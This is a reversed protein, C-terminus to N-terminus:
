SRTTARRSPRAPGPECGGSSPRRRAGRGRGPRNGRCGRRAPRALPRTARELIAVLNRVHGSFTSLSMAISQEDGIDALVADFVPLEAEDAPPRLGCQHLLACRPRADEARRDQRRHEPRQDRARPARRARPRDAGGGGSRAASAARRPPRGQSEDDGARGAVGALAHRLALALDIQAVAEVLAVLEDARRRRGGGLARAPDARGGGARRERGRPAPELGRRRRVARRVADTGHRLQRPRHRARAGRASARLALVPRGRASPSSTTRCTSARARTARWASAPARGAACTGRAARPPAPAAGTLCRRAPRLRGGRRRPRTAAALAAPWARHRGRDRALGPVGDAFGRARRRAALAASSRAVRDRSASRRRARERPRRARGGAAIERSRPRPEPEASTSSSRSPRADDLAQRAAVEDPDDSPALALARAQGPESAAVGALRELIAPLELLELAWPDM